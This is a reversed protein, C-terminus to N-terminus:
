FAQGGPASNTDGTTPTTGALDTNFRSWGGYTWFSLEDLPNTATVLDSIQINASTKMTKITEQHDPSEGLRIVDIPVCHVGLINLLTHIQSTNLEEVIPGLALTWTALTGQQFDATATKTSGPTTLFDSTDGVKAYAIGGSSIKKTVEGLSSSTSLEHQYLRANVWFNLNDKPNNTQPLLTTNYNCLVIFKKQYSTIDGQFLSSESNCGHFNGQETLGLHYTSLPDLAAAIANFYSTKQSKGPPTRRLYLIIVVPDYNSKFAMDNLTNMGEYISGTHLSRMIGGSDRHILVPECPKNDLYDIDFVFARAGLSLAAHIGKVMDFVGDSSSNEGSLYGALRVTLPRWQLLAINTNNIQPTVYPATKNVIAMSVSTNNPPLPDITLGIQNRRVALLQNISEPSSRYKGPGSKFSLGLSLFAIFIIIFLLPIAFTWPSNSSGMSSQILSKASATLGSLSATHVPSHSDSYASFALGAMAFLVIVVVIITPINPNYLSDRSQGAGM